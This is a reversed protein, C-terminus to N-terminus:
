ETILDILNNISKEPNGILPNFDVIDLSVINTLSEFLYKIDLLEIGNESNLINCDIYNSNLVNINFSIHTPNNKILLNIQKIINEINNSNIFDSTFYIINNSEFFLKEANTLNNIGFYILKDFNLYNKIWNFKKNIGTLISIINKDNNEDINPNIDIWIVFLNPYKLLNASISSISISHDNGLFLANYINSNIITNYLQEYNQNIYNVETEIYNCKIDLENLKNIIVKSGCDNNSYINLM